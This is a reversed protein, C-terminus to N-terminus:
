GMKGLEDRTRKFWEKCNKSEKYTMRGAEDLIENFLAIAEEKRDLRMLFQGYTFRGEYNSYRGKFSSLETEAQALNGTKELCLAYVIRAHSKAFDATNIVKQACKVAEDYRNLEYYGCILQMLVHPNNAFIGTLAEKYLVVAEDVMGANLYADALAVKNEFSDSFELAKKLDKIRGTPRIVKDLNSQVATVDQKTIIETFLYIVCGIAPLFVILWIWSQQNGKKICHYVCVAQLILILYYYHSLYYFIGM